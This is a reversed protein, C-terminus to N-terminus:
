LPKPGGSGAGALFTDGCFVELIQDPDDNQHKQTRQHRHVDYIWQIGENIQIIQYAQDERNAQYEEINQIFELFDFLDSATKLIKFYGTRRRGPMKQLIALKKPELVLM